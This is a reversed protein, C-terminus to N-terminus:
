MRRINVVSNGGVGARLHRGDFLDVIWTDSVPRTVPQGKYVRPGYDSLSFHIWNQVISYQRTDFAMLDGPQNTRRYSGNPFFVVSVSITGLPGVEQGQWAGALTEPLLRLGQARLAGPMSAGGVIGLFGAILERRHLMLAPSSAPLAM